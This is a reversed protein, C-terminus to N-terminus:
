HNNKLAGENIIEILGYNKKWWPKKNKRLYSKCIVIGGWKKGHNNTIEAGDIILKSKKELYIKSNEAMSVNNNVILTRGSRVIIDGSVLMAKEWTENKSIFINKEADYEGNATIRILSPNSSFRKHIYGIQKPSLYNRCLNYGM